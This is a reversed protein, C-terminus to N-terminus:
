AITPGCYGPGLPVRWKPALEKAAFKEVVGTENWVGDRNTGRWQPWNDARALTATLSLLIAVFSLRRFMFDGVCHLSRTSVMRLGRPRALYRGEPPPRCHPPTEM